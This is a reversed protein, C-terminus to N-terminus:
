DKGKQKWILNSDEEEYRRQVVVGAEQQLKGLQEEVVNENVVAGTGDDAFWRGSTIVNAVTRM